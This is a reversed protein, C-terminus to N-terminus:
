AGGLAAVGRAAPGQAGRWESVIEFRDAFSGPTSGVFQVALKLPSITLMTFGHRSGSNKGMTAVFYGAEPDNAHVPYLEAGAAGSIVFTSGAGKQYSDDDDVVCDPDFRAVIVAKCRDRPATIQKSRQYTHDHGSLVLDVKKEILMSFLDQYVDCYYEGVSICNKHMGVVVWEIGAARAQDITAGLWALRANDTGDDNKGYYYNVGDITLDPSIMIFRVLRGLDFYYQRGYDGVAHLRDPLCHAYHDLSGDEGPDEEHNGSIIEFPAVPGIKSRVLGCFQRYSNPGAYSFDGLALYMDPKLKAMAELTAM